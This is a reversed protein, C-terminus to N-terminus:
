FQSRRPVKIAVQRNLQPDNALYVVGFAGQGLIKEIVFRGLHTPISEHDIHKNDSDHATTAYLDVKPPLISLIIEQDRPFRLLYEEAFPQEIAKRRLEVEVAILERLLDSRLDPFRDLYDEIKPHHKNRIALEFEDAVRDVQNKPHSNNPSKM